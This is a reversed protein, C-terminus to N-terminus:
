INNLGNIAKKILEHPVLLYDKWANDLLNLYDILSKKATQYDANSSSHKVIFELYSALSAFDVRGGTNIFLNPMFEYSFNPNVVDTHIHDYLIALSKFNNPCPLINRIGYYNPKKLSKNLLALIAADSINFYEKARTLKYISKAEDMELLERHKFIKSLFPYICPNRTNPGFIIEDNIITLTQKEDTCYTATIQMRAALEGYTTSELGYVNLSRWSDDHEHNNVILNYLSFVKIKETDRCSKHWKPIAHPLSEIILRSAIQKGKNTIENRSLSLMTVADSAHINCKLDLMNFHHFKYSLPSNR